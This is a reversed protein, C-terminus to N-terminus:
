AALVDRSRCFASLVHFVFAMTGNGPAAHNARGTEASLVGIGGVREYGILVGAGNYFLFHDGGEAQLFDCTWVTSEPHKAEFDTVWWAVGYKDNQLAQWGKPPRSVSIFCTAIRPLNQRVQDRSMGVHYRLDWELSPVGHWRDNRVLSSSIQPNGVDGPSSPRPLSRLDTYCAVVIIAGVLAVLLLLTNRMAARM